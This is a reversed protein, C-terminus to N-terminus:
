ECLRNSPVLPKLKATVKKKASMNSLITALMSVAEVVHIGKNLMICNARSGTGVDTVEARTPIGSKVLSELVQTAWIVPVHAASCISLIEEQLSPLQDWGCEVALDGRAIMVGLANPLQMAQILLLPLNEFGSLTEIKLIIGLKQINRKELEHQLIKVDRIDRVFSIGVMDANAAVFELDMLDKSTLGEFSMMSKPINISKESGLKSGKRSAHTISVVIESFSVGQIVGWIKGDDFAIPEGPKVSDFLCASSCTIRPAGIQSNGSEVVSPDRSIVLLDGVRLRISQEYPPINVVLGLSLKKKKIKTYFKTDSGVYATRSCEAIFGFGDFVQLKHSIRLVRRRGKVDLFRVVDGAELKSLGRHDDLLLTADPTLHAPPPGSGTYSLWVKAPSVVDGKPDKRPSIKMVKPGPELSGTRLKPGALDMLIRCSMELKQSSNKVRRIIESWVSPNDHACNIRFVNTGSQILETILTDSQIAEKGVTVMIHNPNGNSPIGFLSKTHLSTKTRMVMMNMDQRDENAFRIARIREKDNESTALLNELVLISGSISALVHSNVTQLDLLGVSSLEEGLQQVDLSRLALYHVLNIASQLYNKHCKKIRSANWQELSFLHLQLAKLKDLLDEQALPPNQINEEQKLSSICLLDVTESEMDSQVSKIDSDASKYIDQALRIDHNFPKRSDKELGGDEHLASQISYTSKTKRRLGIIHNLYTIKSPVGWTPNHLYHGNQKKISFDLLYVSQLGNNGPLCQNHRIPISYAMM